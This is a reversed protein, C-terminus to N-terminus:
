TEAVMPVEDCSPFIPYQLFGNVCTGGQGAVLFRTLNELERFVCAGACKLVGKGLVDGVLIDFARRLAKWASQCHLRPRLASRLLM